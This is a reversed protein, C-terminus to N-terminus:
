FIRAVKVYNKSAEAIRLDLASGKVPVAGIEKRFEGVIVDRVLETYKLWNFTLPTVKPNAKYLQDLIFLNSVKM